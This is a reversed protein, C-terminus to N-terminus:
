VPFYYYTLCLFLDYVLVNGIKILQGSELSRTPWFFFFEGYFEGLITMHLITDGNKRKYHNKPDGQKLAIEEALFDFMDTHGYLAARFLPTEGHHNAKDLLEPARKLIEETLSMMDTAASEHLITDELANPTIIPLGLKCYKKLIEKAISERGLYIAIHLITDDSVTLGRHSINKLIEEGKTIATATDGM